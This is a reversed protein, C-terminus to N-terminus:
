PPRQLGGERASRSHGKERDGSDATERDSARGIVVALVISRPHAAHLGVDGRILFLAHSATRLAHAVTVAVTPLAPAIAIATAV